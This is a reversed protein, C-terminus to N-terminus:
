NKPSSIAPGVVIEQGAKLPNLVNASSPQLVGNLDMEISSRQSNDAQGRSNEIRIVGDTLEVSNPKLVEVVYHGRGETRRGDIRALVSFGDTPRQRVKRFRLNTKYAKKNEVRKHRLLYGLFNGEGYEKILMWNNEELGRLAEESSSIGNMSLFTKLGLWEGPIEKISDKAEIM